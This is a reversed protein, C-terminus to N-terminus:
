SKQSAEHRSYTLKNTAIHLAIAAANSVNLSKIRGPIHLKALYNVTIRTRERLGKGEAGLVIAIKSIPKQLLTTELNTPGESDLGISTFGLQHLDNLANCLNPIIIYDLMDLAGSATKALVSTESPSHRSTTIIADVDFAVCSRMIAGINHPDTIQDLLVVCHANKLDCIRKKELPSAIAIIGQHIVIHNFIKNLAHTNVIETEVENLSDYPKIKELANKTLLLKYIKRSKNALAALVTHIGYLYISDKATYNHNIALKDTIIASNNKKAFSTERYSRRLRAYHSDKKTNM